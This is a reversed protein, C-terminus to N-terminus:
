RRRVLPMETSIRETFAKFSAFTKKRRTPMRVGESTKEPKRNSERERGDFERDFLSFFTEGSFLDDIERIGFVGDVVRSALRKRDDPDLRIDEVLIRIREIARDIEIERQHIDPM